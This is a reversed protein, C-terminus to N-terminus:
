LVSIVDCHTSNVFEVDLAEWFAAGDAPTVRGTNPSEATITTGDFSFTALVWTPEGLAVSLVQKRAIKM